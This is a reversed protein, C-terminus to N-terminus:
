DNLPRVIGIPTVTVKEPTAAAFAKGSRFRIREGADVREKKQRADSNLACEIDRSALGRVVVVAPKGDILVQLCDGQTLSFLFVRGDDFERRVVPEGRRLREHVTYRSVAEWDWRGNGDQWVVAHHNEANTVHRGRKGSGVPFPKASVTLRVARIIPGQGVSAPMRPLNGEISFVKEPEGGGLAETVVKRVVPDAIQGVEKRTLDALAKRVRTVPVGGPGMRVGYFTEEHLPGQIRRDVRHSVVVRDLAARLQEALDPWPPTLDLRRGPRYDFRRAAERARGLEEASTLALVVADVAHHRHDSRAKGHGRLIGELQWSRRLTSTIGGTSAKVEPHAGARDRGYLHELYEKALAATYRTDNLHRNLFEPEIEQQQFLALKRRAGDGKFESVRRVMARWREDDEGYAQWPTRRGKRRNEAALCLTKNALSDDLSLAYPVIHEVEVRPHEGFLDAATIMEGTYPCRNNCEELLILKDIDARSPRGVIIGGKVIEEEKGTRLKERQRNLRSIREREARPRKLDSALELHIEDPLGYARVVGNVVKRLETLSRVVAPAAIKGLVKTVPPLEPSAEITRGVGYLEKLATSLPTGQRLLPLLRSIALKSFSAMREDFSLVALAKAEAPDADYRRIVMRVVSQVEDSSRLIQVLEDLDGSAIQQNVLVPAAERMKALSDLGPLHEEGGRELNFQHVAVPVGAKKLTKRLATFKVKGKSQVERLVVDREEPTLSRCEGDDTVIELDNVKQLMRLEQASPLAFSCRRKSTEVSCRGVLARASRLPRQFFIRHRLKRVFDAHQLVSHYPRQANVIAEFEALYQRRATYRCRIRHEHPDVGAFYEGLTRAGAAEVKEQLENISSKVKGDEKSEAKRRNSLFGRRQALHLFVRGLAHPSLPADLAASRLRYPLGPEVMGVRGPYEKLLDADLQLLAGHRHEPDVSDEPLLSAKALCSAVARVRRARRLIQRRVQRATRRAAARSTDRGAQIDMATGDVGATFVRSGLGVIRGTGDASHEILAWGVSNTGVDLGLIRRQM